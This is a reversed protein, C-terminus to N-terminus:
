KWPLKRDDKAIALAGIMAVLLTISILEFALVYKGLLLEAVMGPSGFGEAPDGGFAAPSNTRLWGIVM